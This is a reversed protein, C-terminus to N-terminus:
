NLDIPNYNRIHLVMSNAIQRKIERTTSLSIKADNDVYKEYYIILDKLVFVFVLSDYTYEVSSLTTCGAFANDGISIVSEGIVFNQM